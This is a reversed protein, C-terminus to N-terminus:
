RVLCGRLDVQLGAEQTVIRLFTLDDSIESLDDHAAEDDFSLAFQNQRMCVLSKYVLQSGERILQRLSSRMLGLSM